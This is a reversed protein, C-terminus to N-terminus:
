YVHNRKDCHLRLSSSADSKHTLCNVLMHNIDFSSGNIIYRKSDYQTANSTFNHMAGFCFVIHLTLPLLGTPYTTFSHITGVFVIPNIHAYCNSVSVYRLM